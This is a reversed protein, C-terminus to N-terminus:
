GTRINAITTGTGSAASRAVGSWSMVKQTTSRSVVPPDGASQVMVSTPAALNRPPSHRPVKWVSTLGPEGM